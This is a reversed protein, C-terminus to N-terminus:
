NAGDKPATLPGSTSAKSFFGSDASYHGTNTHYSAVYTTNASVNVPKSFNVTQWGSATEGSFTATALAKGDNSWLTGQHTGTNQRSKYFRVGTVTGDTSAKFRVGLEVASSDPDAKVAPTRGGFLTAVALGEVKTDNTSCSVLAGFLTLALLLVVGRPLARAVSRPKRNWFRLHTRTPHMVFGEAEAM